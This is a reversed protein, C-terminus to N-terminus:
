LTQYDAETPGFQETFKDPTLYKRFQPSKPDSIQQLFEDLKNQNQLPLGVSLHLRQAAQLRGASRLAAVATPVHNRLSRREAAALPQILGWAAAVFIVLLTAISKLYTRM